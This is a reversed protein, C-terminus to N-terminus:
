LELDLSGRVRSWIADWDVAPQADVQQERNSKGGVWGTLADVADRAIWNEEAVDALTEPVLDFGLVDRAEAGEVTLSQSDMLAYDRLYDPSDEVKKVCAVAAGFATLFSKADAFWWLGLNGTGIDPSKLYAAVHRVGDEGRRIALQVDADAGFGAEHEYTALALTIMQAVEM